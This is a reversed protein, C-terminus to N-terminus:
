QSVKKAVTVTNEKSLWDAIIEIESDSLQSVAPTMATSMGNDRKGSKIDEMEQVLYDKNQGALKPYVSMIPSNGDDGHCTSCGKSDFLAMADEDASVTFTSALPILLSLFLVTFKKM